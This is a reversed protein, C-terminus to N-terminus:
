LQCGWLELGHEVVPIEELEKKDLIIDNINEGARATWHPAWWKNMKIRQDFDMWGTHLVYPLNQRKIIELNFQSWFTPVLEGDTFILETTDSKKIDIKGNSLKAGGWVGRNVGRRRHLYYPKSGIVSKCQERNGCLDISPLSVAYYPTNMPDIIYICSEWKDRGTAPLREDMDLGIVYDLICNQLAFNKIMGDFLPNHYPISCRVVNLNNYKQKLSDVAEWTSDDSTNIAVTVRDAFNCYNHISGKYDFNQKILNYGVTYIELPVM